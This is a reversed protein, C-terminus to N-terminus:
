KNVRPSSYESLSPIIFVGNGEARPPRIRAMGASEVRRTRSPVLSGLSLQREANGEQLCFRSGVSIAKKVLVSEDRARGTAVVVVAIEGEVALEAAPNSRRRPVPSVIGKLAKSVPRLPCDGAHDLGIGQM